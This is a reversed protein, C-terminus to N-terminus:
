VLRIKGTLLQQMMGQKIQKYKDLKRELNEIETDMDSLITAIRTQEKFKPIQIKVKGLAGRSIRKHTTGGCLESISNFWNNTSFIQNLFQRNVDINPRFITVDVSTIVREEGINPFLCARGAPDALRCILLDGVKLEKCKLKIFSEKSIYKKNDKDLFTGVGINGTQILRIGSTTIYESEIWDGDDFLEKKYDALEHLDIVEWGDKPKLLEQMAGQKIARKKSILQELSSILADTDSLATAIAKQETLSPPIPIKFKVFDKQYLHNITSGAVLQNLFDNFYKSNFIYFLYSSIYNDRIPRIVFVGSNLTAKKPISDIFAVKGITGDKTILIDNQKLQINKDQTYREKEVYHCTEWKIKGDYFDTGTVLYYEGADLYESTTLGQWGIRAKLTSISVLGKVEWDEPIPGLETNKYKSPKM